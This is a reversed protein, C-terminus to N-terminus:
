PVHDTLSGLVDTPYHVGLYIRSLGVVVAGALGIPITLRRSRGPRAVMLGISWALSVAFATHGSPFSDLGTKTVASLMNETQPRPRSVIQKAVTSSLWGGACVVMFALAQKRKEFALWGGLVLLICIAGVPGLAVNLVVAFATLPSVRIQGAVHSIALDFSNYTLAALGLLLGTSFLSVGLSLLTRPHLHTVPEITQHFRSPM